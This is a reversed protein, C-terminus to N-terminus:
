AGHRFRAQHHVADPRTDPGLDDPRGDHRGGDGFETSASRWHADAAHRLHRRLPRRDRARHHRGSPRHRGSRRAEVMAPCPRVSMFSAATPGGPTIGMWIGVLASRIVAAYYRPMECITKFVDRPDIRSSVHRSFAPRGARDCAIRRHRVPRHRRRPLQHRQSPEGFGFTPPAVRDRYGHGRDFASPWARASVVTKARPAAWASSPAFPSSISPSINRHASGPCFQRGCVVSAYHRHRRDSRGHRRVRLRLHLARTSQGTRPSRIATSHRQWRVRSGTYQVPHSTTSGGGFEEWYMSALLIIASVPDMSFTLDPALRREARRSGASRRRHPWAPRRGGDAPYPTLAIGFGQMLLEFNAM